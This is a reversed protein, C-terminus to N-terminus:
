NSGSDDSQKANEYNRRMRYAVVLYTIAAGFIAGSGFLGVIRVARVDQSANWLGTLSLFLCFLIALSIGYKM